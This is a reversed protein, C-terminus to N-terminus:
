VDLDPEFEDDDDGIDDDDVVLDDEDFDIADDDGFLDDDDDLEGRPAEAVTAPALGSSALSHELDEDLPSQTIMSM